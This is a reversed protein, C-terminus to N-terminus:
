QATDVIWTCNTYRAGGNVDITTVITTRISTTVITLFFIIAPIGRVRTQFYHSCTYAGDDVQVRGIFGAVQLNASPEKFKYYM